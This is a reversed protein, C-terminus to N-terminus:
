DSRRHMLLTKRPTVLTRCMHLMSRTCTMQRSYQRHQRHVLAASGHGQEVITTSCHVEAMLEVGAVIQGFDWQEQLLQWIKRATGDIPAPGEKLQNLNQVIDGSALSWPLEQFPALRRNMFAVSAQAVLIVKSRLKRGSLGCGSAASCLDFVYLPLHCIHHVEQAMHEEIGARGKPWDIM